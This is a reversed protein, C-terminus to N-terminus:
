VVASFELSYMGESPLSLEGGACVEFFFVLLKQYWRLDVVVAIM